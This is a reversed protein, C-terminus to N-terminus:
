KIVKHKIRSTQFSNAREAKITKGRSKAFYSIRYFAKKYESFDGNKIDSNKLMYYSKEPRFVSLNRLNAIYEARKIVKHTTQVKNGDLMFALHYHQKKSREVERCWVFAVRNFNYEKMLWKKYSKIFKTIVENDDTYETVRIDLRYIFVKNHYSLMADIQEKVKELLEIYCPNPQNNIPLVVGGFTVAEGSALKRM